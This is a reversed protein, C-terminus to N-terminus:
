IKQQCSEAFYKKTIKIRDTLFTKEEQRIKAILSILQPRVARSATIFSLINVNIKNALYNNRADFFRDLSTIPHSLLKWTERALEVVIRFLCFISQMEGHCIQEIIQSSLCDFGFHKGNINALANM